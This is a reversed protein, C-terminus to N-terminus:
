TEEGNGPIAAANDEVHLPQTEKHADTLELRVPGPVKNQLEARLEIWDTEAMIPNKIVLEELHAYRDENTFLLCPDCGNLGHTKPRLGFQVAQRRGLGHTKPRLGFQV